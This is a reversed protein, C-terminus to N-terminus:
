TRSERWFRHARKLRVAPCLARPHRGQAVMSAAARELCQQWRRPDVDHPKLGYAREPM